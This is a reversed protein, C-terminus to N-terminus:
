NGDSIKRLIRKEITKIIEAGSWGAFGAFSGAIEPEWSYYSATLYVLAGAFAAVLAQLIFTRITFEEGNLVKYASSASLGMATMLITMMGRLWTLRDMKM